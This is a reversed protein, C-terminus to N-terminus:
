GESEAQAAMRDKIQNKLITLAAIQWRYPSFRPRREQADRLKQIHTEILALIEVDTM